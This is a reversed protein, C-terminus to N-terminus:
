ASKPVRQQQTIAETRFAHEAFVRWADRVLDSTRSGDRAARVIDGLKQILAVDFDLCASPLEGRELIHRVVARFTQLKEDYSPLRSAHDM